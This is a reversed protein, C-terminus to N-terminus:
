GIQASWYRQSFNKCSPPEAEKSIIIRRILQLDTLIVANYDFGTQFEKMWVKIERKVLSDGPNKFYRKIYKSFVENGLITKADDKREERWHNLEDVKSRAILSLQNEVNDKFHKEFNKHYPYGVLVISCGISVLILLYSFFIRKERKDYAKM